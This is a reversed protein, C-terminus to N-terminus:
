SKEQAGAAPHGVQQRLERLVADIGGQGKLAVATASNKLREREAVTINKGTWVIVPTDACNALQRL